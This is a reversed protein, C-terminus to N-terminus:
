KSFYSIALKVLKVMTQDLLTDVQRVEEPWSQFVGRLASDRKLLPDDLIERFIDDSTGTLNRM